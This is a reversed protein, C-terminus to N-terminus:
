LPTASGKVVSHLDLCRRHDIFFGPNRVINVLSLCRESGTRQCHVINVLYRRFGQHVVEPDELRWQNPRLNDAGSGSKHHAMLLCQSSILMYHWTEVEALRRPQVSDSCQQSNKMSAPWCSMFLCTLLTTAKILHVYHLHNDGSGENQSEFELIRQVCCHNLPACLATSTMSQSHGLLINQVGAKLM